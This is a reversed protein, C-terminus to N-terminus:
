IPKAPPTPQTPSLLDQEGICCQRLLRHIKELREDAIRPQVIMPLPHTKFRSGPQSVFIQYLELQAPRPKTIDNASSYLGYQAHIDGLITLDVATSDQM